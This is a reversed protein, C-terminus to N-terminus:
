NRWSKSVWKFHDRRYNFYLSHHKNHSSDHRDASSTSGHQPVQPTQQSNPTLETKGLDFDSMIADVHRWFAIIGDPTLEGNCDFHGNAHDLSIKMIHSCRDGSIVNELITNFKKTLAYIQKNNSVPRQLM